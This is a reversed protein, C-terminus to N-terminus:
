HEFEIPQMNQLILNAEHRLGQVHSHVAAKLGAEAEAQAKQAAELDSRVGPEAQIRM